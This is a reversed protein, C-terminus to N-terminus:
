YEDTYKLQLYKRPVKEYVNLNRALFRVSNRLFMHWGLWNVLINM